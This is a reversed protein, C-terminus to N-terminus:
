RKNQAKEIAEAEREKQEALTQVFWNRLGVPLNYSEFISFGSHYKLAFIQEYVKQMYTPTLGFFTQGLPCRWSKNTDASVVLSTTLM